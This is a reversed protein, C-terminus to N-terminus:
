LIEAQKGHAALTDHIFKMWVRDPKWVGTLQAIAQSVPADEYIVRYLFVFASGRMNVQCHVFVNRGRSAKMAESFVRFNEATPAGFEVPINLYMVGKSGVIGGENAISGHSQPPALNIVIDYGREKVRALWEADPQASSALGERWTVFNGPEHAHADLPFAFPTIAVLVAALRNMAASSNRTAM